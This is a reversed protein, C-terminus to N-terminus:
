NADCGYDWPESEEESGYCSDEHQVMPRRRLLLTQRVLTRFLMFAVQLVFQGVSSSIVFNQNFKHIIEVTTTTEQLRYRYSSLLIRVINTKNTPVESHYM